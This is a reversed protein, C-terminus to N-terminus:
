FISMNPVNLVLMRCLMHFIQRYITHVFFTHGYLMYVIKGYTKHFLYNQGYLM